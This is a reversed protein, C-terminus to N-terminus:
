CFPSPALSRAALSHAPIPSPFPPLVLRPESEETAGPYLTIGEKKQVAMLTPLFRYNNSHTSGIFDLRALSDIMKM